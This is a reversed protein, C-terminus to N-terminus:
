QTSMGHMRHVLPKTAATRILEILGQDDPSDSTTEFARDKLEIRIVEFELSASMYMARIEPRLERLRDVLETGSTVDPSRSDPKLFVDTLVVDIPVYGRKAIAMAEKANRALLARMGNADLIRAFFSLIEPEEDVVLVSLCDSRVAM